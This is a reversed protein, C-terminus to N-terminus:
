FTMDIHYNMTWEACRDTWLGIAHSKRPLTKGEDDILQCGTIFTNNPIDGQKISGEFRYSRYSEGRSDNECSCSVDISFPKTYEIFGHIRLKCKKIADDDLAFFRLKRTYEERKPASALEEKAMVADLLNIHKSERRM